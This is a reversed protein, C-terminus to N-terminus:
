AEDGILRNKTDLFLVRFRETRSLAAQLCHLLM